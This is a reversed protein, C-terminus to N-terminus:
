NFIAILFAIAVPTQDLGAIQSPPVSGVTPSSTYLLVNVTVISWFMVTALILLAASVPTVAPPVNAQLVELVIVAFMTAPPAVTNVHDPAFTLATNIPFTVAPVAPTPKTIDIDPVVEVAFM